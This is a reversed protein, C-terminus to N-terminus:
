SMIKSEKPGCLYEEEVQGPEQTGTAESNWDSKNELHDNRIIKQDDLLNQIIGRLFSVLTLQICTHQWLYARPLQM